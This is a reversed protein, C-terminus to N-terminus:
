ELADITLALLEALVLNHKADLKEACCHIFLRVILCHGVLDVEVQILSGLSDHMFTHM